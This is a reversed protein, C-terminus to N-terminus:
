ISLNVASVRVRHTLSPAQLRRTAGRRVFPGVM